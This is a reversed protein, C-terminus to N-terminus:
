PAPWKTLITWLPMSYPHVQDPKVSMESPVCKTLPTVFLPRLHQVIVDEGGIVLCFGRDIGWVGWSTGCDITHIGKAGLEKAHIITLVAPIEIGTLVVDARSPTLGPIIHLRWM